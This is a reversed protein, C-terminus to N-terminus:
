MFARFVAHDTPLAQIHFQALVPVRRGLAACLINLLKMVHTAGPRTNNAVAECM